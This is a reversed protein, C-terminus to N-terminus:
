SGRRVGGPTTFEHEYLEADDLDKDLLVGGEADATM